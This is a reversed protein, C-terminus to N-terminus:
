SLCAITINLSEISVKHHYQRKTLFPADKSLGSSDKVEVSESTITPGRRKGPVCDGSHKNRIILADKQDQPMNAGVNKQNNRAYETRLAREASYCPKCVRKNGWPNSDEFTVFEHCRCCENTSLTAVVAAPPGPPPPLSPHPGSTRTSGTAAAAMDRAMGASRGAGAVAPVLAM